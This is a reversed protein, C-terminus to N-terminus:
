DRQRHAVARDQAGRRRLAVDIDDGQRARGLLLDPLPRPRLYLCTAKKRWKTSLIIMYLLTVLVLEPCVYPFSVFSICKRVPALQAFSAKRTQAVVKM